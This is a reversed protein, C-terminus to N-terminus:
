GIRTWAEEDLAPFTVICTGGEVPDIRAFGQADLRGQRVTGDPLEVRYAEGPIPKGDEGLLKIEIWTLPQSPARASSPAVPEEDVEGLDRAPLPVTIPAPREVLAARGALLLTALREIVDADDLRDVAGEEGSERLLARMQRMNGPEAALWRLLVRTAHREGGRPMDILFAGRRAGLADLEFWRSGHFLIRKM